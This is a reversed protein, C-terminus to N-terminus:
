NHAEDTIYYGSDKEPDKGPPTFTFAETQNGNFTIERTAEGYRWSWSSQVTITYNGTPLGRITKKTGEPVAVTLSIGNGEIKYIFSQDSTLWDPPEVPGVAIDSQIILTNPSVKAVFTFTKGVDDTEVINPILKNGEVTAWDSGSTIKVENGDSDVYYWDELIYGPVLIPYSGVPTNGLLVEEETNSLAGAEGLSMKYIFSASKKTYYCIIEQNNYELEIEEGGNSLDYGAIDKKVADIQIMQEYKGSHKEEISDPIPTNTGKDYFKVIYDYDERVYNVYIILGNTWNGNADTEPKVLTVEKVANADGSEGTSTTYGAYKFGKITRTDFVGKSGNAFQAEFSQVTRTDYRDNEDTYNLNEYRHHVEYVVMDYRSSWNFIVVNDSHVNTTELILLQTYANPSLNKIVDWIQSIQNSTYDTENDLKQSIKDKTVFDRFNVTLLASDTNYVEGDWTLELTTSGIITEFENSVFVHKIHYPVHEDHHYMFVIEFPKVEDTDSEVPEIKVTQERHVPFYGLQYQDYLDKEVKATFFRPKGALAVGETPEAIDVIQGDVESRYYVIYPVPIESTWKAYIIYDQKIPMTNFDFRNEEENEDRYYWGAFIYGAVPPTRKPERSATLLTGFPIDLHEALKQADTHEQPDEQYITVDWYTPEWKAYLTLDRAPMIQGSFDFETGAAYTPTTYWGAFRVSGQEKSTPPNPIFYKGSINAEYLISETKDGIENVGDHFTLKYSNRTYYLYARRSNFNPVASDRQTFGTIPFYDEDYTLSINNGKVSASFDVFYDVGNSTVSDKGDYTAGPLKEFAYYWTYTNGSASSFTMTIDQNPMKHLITYYKSTISSQWWGSDKYEYGNNDIIPWIDAIYSDYKKTVVKVYRSSCNAANNHTHVFKTCEGYCEDTHEHQIVGCDYLYCKNSDHTHEPKGCCSTSHTHIVDKYCSAIHGHKTLQCNEIPTAQNGYTVNGDYDHWTGNIYIYYSTGWLARIRGISGETETGEVWNSYDSEQGAGEYCDATHANHSDITCTLCALTHSAHEDLTCNTKCSESHVHEEIACSLVGTGCSADHVHTNEIGCILNSVCTGDGHTHTYACNGTGKFILNIYNRNYYVNVATTGDGKVIINKDSRNANFTFCAKDKRVLDDQASITTNPTSDVVKISDLTFNDDDANELWYIVTYTTTAIDWEAKYKLNHKITLMASGNSYLNRIDEDEVETKTVTISGDTETKETSTYVNMLTWSNFTYGPATPATLLLKTDYRVYLPMIGYGKSGDPVTLDFDILYYNRDYYIDVVTDGNASIRMETDYYLGTFGQSESAPLYLNDFVRDPDDPDFLSAANLPYDALGKLFYTDEATYEDDDLHQFHYNVEIFVEVPLYYVTVERAEKEQSFVIPSAEVYKHTEASNPDTPNELATYSRSNEDSAADDRVYAKYGPIIPHNKVGNYAMGPLLTVTFTESAAHGHFDKAWKSDNWYIYDVVIQFADGEAQATVGSGAASGSRAMRGAPVALSDTNQSEPESEETEVETEPEPILPLEPAPLSPDVSIDLEGSAYSVGDQTAICRLTAAGDLGANAILAESIPAYPYVYDQINAWRNNERDILLQWRYTPTGQIVSGLETFVYTKEGKAITLTEVTQGDMVLGVQGYILGDDAPPAVYEGLIVIDYEPDLYRYQAYKEPWDENTVRVYPDNEKELCVILETPCGDTSVVPDVYQDSNYGYEVFIDSESAPIKKYLYAGTDTTNWSATYIQGIEMSDVSIGGAISLKNATVYRYETYESPWNATNETVYVLDYDDASKRTVTLERPLQSRDLIGSDIFPYRGNPIFVDSIFEATYLKGVEMDAVDIGTVEDEAITPLAFVPFMQFITIVALLLSLIRKKM